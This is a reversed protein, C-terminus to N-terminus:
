KSKCGPFDVFDSLNKPARVREANHYYVNARIRFNLIHGLSFGLIVQPDGHGMRTDSHDTPLICISTVYGPDDIKADKMPFSEM